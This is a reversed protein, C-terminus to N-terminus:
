PAAAPAEASKARGYQRLYTIRVESARKFCAIMAKPVPQPLAGKAPVGCSKPYSRVWNRQDDVLAKLQKGELRARADAFARDREDLIKLLEPSACAVQQAPLRAHKCDIARAAGCWALLALAFLVTTLLRHM